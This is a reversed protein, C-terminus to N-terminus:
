YKWYKSPVGAAKQCARWEGNAERYAESIIGADRSIGLDFFVDEIAEAENGCFDRTTVIANAITQIIADRTM